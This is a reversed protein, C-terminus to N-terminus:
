LSVWQLQCFLYYVKKIIAVRVLAASKLSSTIFTVILVQSKFSFVTIDQIKHFFYQFLLFYFYFLALCVM